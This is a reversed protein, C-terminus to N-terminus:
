INLIQDLSVVIYIKLELSLILIGVELILIVLRKIFFFIVLLLDYLVFIENFMGIKFCKLQNKWYM